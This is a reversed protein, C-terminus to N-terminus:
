DNILHKTYGMDVLQKYAKWVDSPIKQPVQFGRKPYEKMRQMDGVLSNITQEKTKHEFPYDEFSVHPSTIIIKIKSWHKKLIALTRREMYPKHVFIIKKPYINKKNLLDKTFQINEGTNTSKNEILIKGEPVGMKIAIQKFKEAEPMNWLEKTIRGLGGSFVLLPAWGDLYIKAATEATRTDSSGLGIILDSKKLKNNILMYDWITKALQDSNLKM